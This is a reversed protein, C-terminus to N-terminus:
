LLCNNLDIIINTTIIIFEKPRKILLNNTIAIAISGKNEFKEIILIFDEQKKIM